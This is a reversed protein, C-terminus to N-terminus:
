CAYQKWHKKWRDPINGNLSRIRKLERCICAKVAETANDIEDPLFEKDDGLVKRYKNWCAEARGELQRLIDPPLLAALEQGALTSENSVRQEELAEDFAKAAAKRDRERQWVGIAASAASIGSFLLKAIEMMSLPDVAAM